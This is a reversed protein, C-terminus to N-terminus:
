DDENDGMPRSGSLPRYHWPPARWEEPLAGTDMYALCDVCVDLHILDGNPPDNEGPSDRHTWAHAAHRAGGLSSRCLDCEAEPNDPDEVHGAGDCLDCAHCAVDHGCNESEPADCEACRYGTGACRECPVTPGVPCESCRSHPLTGHSLHALGEVGATYAALFREPAPLEWEEGALMAYVERATGEEPGKESAAPKYELASLVRYETSGQGGHHASCYWHLAQAAAFVTSAEGDPDTVLTEDRLAYWEQIWDLLDAPYLPNGDAWGHSGRVANLRQGIRVYHPHVVVAEGNGNTAAHDCCGLDWSCVEGRKLTPADSSHPWGDRDREDYLCRAGCTLCVAVGRDRAPAMTRAAEHAVRAPDATRLATRLRTDM